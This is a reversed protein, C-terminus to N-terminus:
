ARRVAPRIRRYFLRLLSVSALGLCAGVVNLVVDNVDALRYSGWARSLYQVVEIGVSLAVAILIASRVRLRTWILPILIGLPLFLLVNGRANYMCFFRANSGSPLTASPRCTLTALSPRFDVGVATDARSRSGHNPALTAAGLGSLYLVLTVLLIERHFSLREGTSRLRYLRLGLWCPVAIASVILFPVLISRYVLFPYVIQRLM